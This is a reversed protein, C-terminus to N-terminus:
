RPERIAHNPVQGSPLEEIGDPLVLVERSVAGPRAPNAGAERRALM